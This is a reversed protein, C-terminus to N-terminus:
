SKYVFIIEDSSDVGYGNAVPDFTLIKTSAVFTFNDTEIGNIGMTLVEFCDAPLTFSTQDDTIVSVVFTKTDSSVDDTARDFILAKTSLELQMYVLRASSSPRTNVLKGPNAPDLYFLDGFQGTLPPQVNFDISAFPKFTFYNIGPISISNIIGITDNVNADATAVLFQGRNTPDPKILDGIQFTHGTQLVQVYKQYTNRYAFRGILDTQFSPPVIGPAVGTLIPIGDESVEFLFGSGTSIAGFGGQFPDSYTNFREVDEAIVVVNDTNQSTIQIIRLAAGDLSSSVWDGIKIDNGTYFFPSASFPDSTPQASINMDVTWQYPSGIWPDNNGDDESWNAFPTVSNIFIQLLKVPQVPAM